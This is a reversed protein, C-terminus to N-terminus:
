ERSVQLMVTVRVKGLHDSVGIVLGRRGEDQKGVTPTLRARNCVMYNSSSATGLGFAGGVPVGERNESSHSGQATRESWAEIRLHRQEGSVVLLTASFSGTCPSEPLNHSAHFVGCVLSLM